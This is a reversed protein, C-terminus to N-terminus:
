KTAGIWDQQREVNSYGLAVLLNNFYEFDHFTKYEKVPPLLKLALTATIKMSQHLCMLFNRLSDPWLKCIDFIIVHTYQSYGLGNGFVSDALDGLKGWNSPDYVTLKGGEREWEIM